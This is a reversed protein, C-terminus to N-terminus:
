FIKSNITRILESFQKRALAANLVVESQELPSKYAHDLHDFRGDLQGRVPLLREIFLEPHGNMERDAFLHIFEGFDTRMELLTIDSM